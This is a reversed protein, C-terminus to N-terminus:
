STLHSVKTTAADGDFYAGIRVATTQEDGTLYNNNTYTTVWHALDFSQYFRTDSGSQNWEALDSGEVTTKVNEKKDNIITSTMLRRKRSRSNASAKSSRLHNKTFDATVSVTYGSDKVTARQVVPTAAPRLQVTEALPGNWAAALGGLRDAERELGADDNVEVGFFQLTAPVRGQKQQVVHWAEHALHREQGPAVHIETGLTYAHAELQAPKPSGYHVRVDDLSLGSLAEVGAKLRDPLGTRNPPAAASRIAPDAGVAPSQRGSDQHSRRQLAAVRGALQATDLRGPRGAAQRGAPRRAAPEMRPASMPAEYRRM